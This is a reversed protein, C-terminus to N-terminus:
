RYRDVARPATMFGPRFDPNRWDHTEAVLSKDPRLRSVYDAIIFLQDYSFKKIQKTMKKDANRRRGEKIWQLQRLVYDFHQGHIRPYFKEAEGEGNDGHCKKCNDAYLQKGEELRMGRGISNHPVMPLQTIYASIDTLAQTGRAFLSNTFPIMTPNDRNGMRIDALQKLLVTQHQGAIQPFRGSPSGWGEPTHCAACNRYLAKGKELDPTGNLAENVLNDIKDSEAESEAQATNSEAQATNSEAQAANSEAQAANSVFFVMSLCLLNLISKTKNIKLFLLYNM